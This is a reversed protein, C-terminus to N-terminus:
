QSVTAVPVIRYVISPFWISIQECDVVKICWYLLVVICCYLLVVICWYLLVVICCYSNEEKGLWGSAGCLTNSNPSPDARKTVTALYREGWRWWISETPMAGSMAHEMRLRSGLGGGRSKGRGPSPPERIGRFARMMAGSERAWSWASAHMRVASCSSSRWTLPCQIDFGLFQPTEHPALKGCRYRSMPDRNQRFNGFRWTLHSLHPFCSHHPFACWKPMGCSTTLQLIQSQVINPDRTPPFSIFLHPINLFYRPVPYYVYTYIYM